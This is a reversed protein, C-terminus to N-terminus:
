AHQVSREDIIAGTRDRVVQHVDTVVRGDPALAFRLPEVRADIVDFQRAWYSRVASRGQVRGGEWTNPWDVNPHMVAIVADIDRANFAAYGRRLLAELERPVNSGLM